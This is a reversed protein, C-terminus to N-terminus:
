AYIYEPMEDCDMHEDMDQQYLVDFVTELYSIMKEFEDEERFIKKSAFDKVIYITEFEEDRTLTIDIIEGFFDLHLTKCMTMGNCIYKRVDEKNIIKYNYM